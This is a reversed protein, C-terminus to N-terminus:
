GFGCCRKKNSKKKIKPPFIRPLQNDLEKPHSKEMDEMSILAKSQSCENDEDFKLESGNQIFLSEVLISPGNAEGFFSDPISSKKITNEVKECNKRIEDIRNESCSNLDIINKEAKEICSMLKSLKAEGEMISENLDKIELYIQTSEKETSIIKQSMQKAEYDKVTYQYCNIFWNAFFLVEESLRTDKHILPLNHKKYLQTFYKLQDSSIYNPSYTKLAEILSKTEKLFTQILKVRFSTWCPSMSGILICIAIGIDQMVPSPNHIDMLSGFCLKSASEETKKMENTFSSIERMINYYQKEQEELIRKSRRYQSSLSAVEAKYGWVSLKNSEIHRKCESILFQQENQLKKAESM